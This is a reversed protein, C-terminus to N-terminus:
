CYTHCHLPYLNARVRMRYWITVAGTGQILVYYVGGHTVRYQLQLEQACPKSAYCGVNATQIVHSGRYLFAFAGCTPVATGRCSQVAISLNFAGPQLGMTYWQKDCSCKGTRAVLTANSRDVVRGRLAPGHASAAAPLLGIFLGTCLVLCVFLRRIM